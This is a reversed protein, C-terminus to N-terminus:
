VVTVVDAKVVAFDPWEYTEENALLEVRLQQRKRPSNFVYARFTSNLDEYDRRYVLYGVVDIASQSYGVRELDTRVRVKLGQYPYHM